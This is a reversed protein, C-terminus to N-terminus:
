RARRRIPVYSTVLLGVATVTACAGALYVVHAISGSWANAFEGASGIAGIALLALGVLALRENVTSGLPPLKAHADRGRAIQWALFGLVKFAYGLISLCLWGLVALAVAAEMLPPYWTGVIACATATLACSWAVAAFRLSVDLRKRARLALTRLHTQVIWAVCALVVALLLRVAVVHTAGIAIGALAAILVWQPIKRGYAAGHAISFMPVFRYSIAIVLVSAFAGIALVAHVPALGLLRPSLTGQLAGAFAAGLVAACAFGLLALGLAWRTAREAQGAFLRAATWGVWVIATLALLIGAPGFTPAGCFAAILLGFGIGFAGGIAIVPGAAVTPARTLVPILQNSAAVAALVVFAAFAHLAALSGGTAALLVCGALFYAIGLVMVSGSGRPDSVVGGIM